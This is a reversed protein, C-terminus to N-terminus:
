ATAFLINISANLMAITHRVIRPKYWCTLQSIIFRSKETHQVIELFFSSFPVTLWSPTQAMFANGEGM